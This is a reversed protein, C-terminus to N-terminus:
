RKRRTIEVYAALAARHRDRRAAVEPPPLPGPASSRTIQPAQIDFTWTGSTNVISFWGGEPMSVPGKLALKQWSRGAFTVPKGSPSLIYVSSPKDNPLLTVASDSAAKDFDVPKKDKSASVWVLADFPM